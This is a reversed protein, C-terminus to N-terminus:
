ADAPIPSRYPAGGGLRVPVLGAGRTAVVSGFATFFVALKIFGGIFPLAGAILFLVGGFALHVYPNKTRHGLLACGVTELVSCVGAFTGFVAALTAAVVFPIGILTLSVAACLIAGCLLGVVGTAFSRMPHSAIQVKLKDMRDPALALLVAGFVFLLAAGNIADAAQRALTQLRGAPAAPKAPPAAAAKRDRDRDRGRSHRAQKRSGEHIEGGVRSGADRRLEGGVVGVDGDVSAGSEMTLSGNVAAANGKVRAGPHLHVDGYAVSLDGTVLGWVDANGGVVAVDHAVEGPEVRLDSGTVSRDQGRDADRDPEALPPVPPMPPIPPAPAILAVPARAMAGDEPTIAILREDRRAVYHGDALLLDLLKGAPQDKVHVSVPDGKPANLVLSWGAAAGLRKVAEARPVNDLDLTVEPDDDSWDGDRRVDALAVSSVVVSAALAGFGVRQAWRRSGVM